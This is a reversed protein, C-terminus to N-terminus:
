VTHLYNKEVYLWSCSCLDKRRFKGFYFFASPEDFTITNDESEANKADIARLQKLDAIWKAGEEDDLYSGDKTIKNMSTFTLVKFINECEKCTPAVNYARVCSFWTECPGSGFRGAMVFQYGEDLLDKSVDLISTTACIIGTQWPKRGKQRFELSDILLMFDNLFKLMENYKERNKYSLCMASSKSTIFKVWKGMMECFLATTLYSKDRGHETVLMRIGVAVEQSFTAIATPVNMKDFNSTLDGM